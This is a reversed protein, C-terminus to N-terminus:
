TMSRIFRINEGDCRLGAAYYRILRLAVQSYPFITLPDCAVATWWRLDYKGRIRLEFHLHPSLSSGSSGMSAIINGKEFRTGVKPIDKQLHNYSSYIWYGRNVGHKLLVNYGYISDYASKVVMGDGVAVVPWGMAGLIDVGLHFNGKGNNRWQYFHYADKIDSYNYPKTPMIFTWDDLIIDQFM